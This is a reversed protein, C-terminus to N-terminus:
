VAPSASLITATHTREIRARRTCSYWALKQGARLSMVKRGATISSERSNPSQKLAM